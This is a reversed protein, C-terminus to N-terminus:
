VFMENRPRYSLAERTVSYKFYVRTSALILEDVSAQTSM